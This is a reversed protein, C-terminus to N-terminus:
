KETNEINERGKKGQSKHYLDLYEDGELKPKSCVKSPIGENEESEEILAKYDFETGTAHKIAPKEGTSHKLEQYGSRKKAKEIEDWERATSHRVRTYKGTSYKM